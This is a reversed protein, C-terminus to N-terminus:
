APRALSPQMPRRRRPKDAPVCRLLYPPTPVDASILRTGQETREPVAAEIAQVVASVPAPKCLHGQAFRRVAVLCRAALSPTFVICASHPCYYSIASLLDRGADVGAFETLIVDYFKGSDVTGYAHLIDATGHITWHPREQQLETLLAQLRVQDLEIVLVRLASMRRTYAVGDDAAVWAKVTWM